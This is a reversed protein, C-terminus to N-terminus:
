AVTPFLSRACSAGPDFIYKYRLTSALAHQDQPFRRTLAAVTTLWAMIYSSFSRVYLSVLFLIDQPLQLLVSRRQSASMTPM